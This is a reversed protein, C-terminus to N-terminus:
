LEFDYTNINDVIGNLYSFSINHDLIDHNKSISKLIYDSIIINYHGYDKYNATNNVISKIHDFCFVKANAYDKLIEALHIRMYLLRNFFKRKSVDATAYFFSSYPPLYLFFRTSKNKEILPILYEEISNYSYKSSIIDKTSYFVKRNNLKNKLIRLNESSNYKTFEEPRYWTDNIQITSFDKLHHNNNIM